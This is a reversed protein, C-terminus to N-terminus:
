VLEPESILGGFREVFTYRDMMLMEAAKGQSILGSNLSEIVRQVYGAPLRLSVPRADTKRNEALWKPADEGRKRIYESTSLAHESIARLETACDFERYTKLEEDGIFGNDFAARLLTKQEVHTSAMLHAVDRPTLSTWRIGFQNAYHQLVGRPVLADQAFAIARAEAFASEGEGRDRFDLSVPDNELDFIAHCVEHMLVENRRFWTSKYINAFICPVVDGGRGVSFCCGELASKAIPSEIILVGKNRLQRRISDGIGVKGHELDAVARFRAAATQGQIAPPATRDITSAVAQAVAAWNASNQVNSVEDLQSMFFGLRRVQAVFERDVDLLENSRLKFWIAPALASRDSTKIAFRRLLNEEPIGLVASLEPIVFLPLPQRGDIWARFHDKPVRLLSACFDPSLRTAEIIQNLM